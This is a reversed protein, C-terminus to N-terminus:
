PGMGNAADVWSPPEYTAPTTGAHRPVVAHGGRHPTAGCLILAVAAAALFVAVMYAVVAASGHRVPPRRRRPVESRIQVLEEEIPRGPVAPVRCATSPCQRTEYISLCAGCLLRGGPLMVATM